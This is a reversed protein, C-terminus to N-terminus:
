FEAPSCGEPGMAAMMNAMMSDMIGSVLRPIAKTAALVIVGGAFAGISGALLYKVAGSRSTDDMTEEMPLHLISGTSKSGERLRGPGRSHQAADLDV